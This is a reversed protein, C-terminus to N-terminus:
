GTEGWTLYRTPNSLEPRDLLRVLLPILPNSATNPSQTGLSGSQFLPGPAHVTYLWALPVGPRYVVSQHQVLCESHMPYKSFAPKTSTCTDSNTGSIRICILPLFGTYLSPYYSSTNLALFVQDQRRGFVYALVKDSHHDIAHWLWRPNAKQRVYSRMEDLESTLEHPKDLEDARCIEV